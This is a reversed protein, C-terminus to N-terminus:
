AAEHLDEKARVYMLYTRVVAEGVQRLAPQQDGVLHPAAAPFNCPPASAPMRGDLATRATAPPQGQEGRGRRLAQEASGAGGRESDVAPHRTLAWPSSRTLLAASIDLTATKIKKPLPMLSPGVGRFWCLLM